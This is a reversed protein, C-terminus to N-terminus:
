GHHLETMQRNPQNHMQYGLWLSRAIREAMEQARAALAQNPLTRMTEDFLALWHRFLDASLDPLAIHKPMPTGDYTGTGRLLSSWFSVMRSLHTDWDHIHAAFVPGLIDDQRIRDYFRHVLTVIDEETCLTDRQTM